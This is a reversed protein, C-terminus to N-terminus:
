KELSQRLANLIDEASTDAAMIGKAQYYSKSFTDGLSRILTEVFASGQPIDKALTKNIDVEVGKGESYVKVLHGKESGYKCKLGAQFEERIFSYEPKDSLEDFIRARELQEWTKKRIEQSAKKLDQANGFPTGKLRERTEANNAMSRAKTSKKRTKKTAMARWRKKKLKSTNMQKILVLRITRVLDIYSFHSM